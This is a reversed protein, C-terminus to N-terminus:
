VVSPDINEASGYSHSHVNSNYWDNQAIMFYTRHATMGTMRHSRYSLNRVILLTPPCARCSRLGVRVALALSRWFAISRGYLHPHPGPLPQAHECVAGSCSGGGCGDCHRGADNCDALLQTPVVCPKRSSTPRLFQERDSRFHSSQILWKIATPTNEHHRQKYM